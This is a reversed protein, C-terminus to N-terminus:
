LSKFAWYKFVLIIHGVVLSVQCIHKQHMRLHNKELDVESANSQTYLHLGLNLDGIDNIYIRSILLLM